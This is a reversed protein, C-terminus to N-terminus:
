AFSGPNLSPKALAGINPHYLPNEDGDGQQGDRAHKPHYHKLQKGLEHDPALRAADQQPLVLRHSYGVIDRNDAKYEAQSGEKNAVLEWLRRMVGDSQIYKKAMSRRVRVYREYAYINSWERLTRFYAHRSVM